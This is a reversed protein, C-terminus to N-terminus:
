KKTEATPAVSPLAAKLAALNSQAESAWPSKPYLTLLREYAAQAEKPQNQITRLRGLEMYCRPVLYHDPFERLFREYQDIAEPFKKLEVDAAALGVVMLAKYAPLTAQGVGEQYSKAADEFKREQILLEGKLIYAQMAVPNTRQARLVEDISGLAEKVQGKSAQFRAASLQLIGGERLKQRNVVIAVTLGGALVAIGFALLLQARHAIMWQAAKESATAPAKVSGPLTYIPSSM